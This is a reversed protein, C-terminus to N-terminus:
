NDNQMNDFLDLIDAGLIDHMNNYIVKMNSEMDHKLLIKEKLEERTKRIWESIKDLEDKNTHITNYCINISEILLEENAERIKNPIELLQDSAENIKNNLEEVYRKDKDLRKKVKGTIDNGTDMNDIIDKLLTKKLKKMDEIDTALKGQTMLLQNVKLELERLRSTKREDPFLEHWRADLTLIPIKKNQIVSGFDYTRKRKKM